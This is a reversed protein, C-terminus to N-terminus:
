RNLWDRAQKRNRIVSQLEWPLSKFIRNSALRRKRPLELRGWETKNYVPYMARICENLGNYREGPPIDTLRALAQDLTRIQKQYDPENRAKNLLFHFDTRAMKAVALYCEEYRQYNKPLLKLAKKGYTFTEGTKGNMEPLHLIVNRLHNALNHQPPCGNIFKKSHKLWRVKDEATRQEPPMIAYAFYMTYKDGLTAEKPFNKELKDTLQRLEAQDVLRDFSTALEDKEKQRQWFDTLEAKLRQFDRSM